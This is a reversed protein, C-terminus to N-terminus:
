KLDRCQGRITAEDFVYIPTGFETVLDVVDCGGLVLHGSANVASDVPFLPSSPFNM